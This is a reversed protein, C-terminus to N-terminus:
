HENIAILEIFVIIRVLFSLFSQVQQKSIALSDESIIWRVNGTCPPRTLSGTYTWYNQSIPKPLPILYEIGSDVLISESPDVLDQAINLLDTWEPIDNDVLQVLHSLVVITNGINNAAAEELFNFGAHYYTAQIEM